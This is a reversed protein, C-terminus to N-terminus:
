PQCTLVGGRADIEAQPLTIVRPGLPRPQGPAPPGLEPGLEEFFGFMRADVLHAGSEFLLSLRKQRVIERLLDRRTPFDALARPGLQGARQRIVNVMELAEADRGLGWLAEARLLILEENILIPLPTTPGTVNTFLYDSAINADAGSVLRRAPDQVVKGLRADGPEAAAVVKPNARIVTPDFNANTLDGSGLTYTHYVGSRLAGTPAVFSLDLARLASDLAVADIAGTRAFDRFGRYVYAKGQLGRTFRAFTAPTDFSGQLRFGSPVAFPFAAGGQALDRAASDLLATITTLVAPKCRIPQIATTITTVPVGITDRMEILRLYQNAQWTRAWGAVASKAPAELLGTTAVDRVLLQASRITRYHVNYTFDALFAGAGFQGLPQLVYRPDAVDIRYADRGMTELVLIEFAHQERDGAPLGLAQAQIQSLDTFGQGIVPNTYDPVTTDKCGALAGAALALAAAARVLRAAPAPRRRAARARLPPHM